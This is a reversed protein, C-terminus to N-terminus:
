ILILLLVVLMTSDIHLDKKLIKIANNIQKKVTKDSIHLREAIEKHTLHEERSLQFILKMKSPLGAISRDLKEKLESYNLQELTAYDLEQFSQYLHDQHKEKLKAKELKKFVINKNATFLYAFISDSDLQIDKIRNWFNMFLEQTVDKAEEEDQFIAFAQRYMQISYRQYLVEFASLDGTRVKLILEKDTIDATSDKDSPKM